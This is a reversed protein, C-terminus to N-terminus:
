RIGEIDIMMNFCFFTTNHCNCLCNVARFIKFSDNETSGTISLCLIDAIFLLIVNKFFCIQTISSSSIFNDRSSNSFYTDNSVDIRPIPIVKAIDKIIAVPPKVRNSLALCNDRYMPMHGVYLCDPPETFILPCILRLPSLSRLTNNYITVHDVIRYLVDQLSHESSSLDCPLGELSANIATALTPVVLRWHIHSLINIFIYLVSLEHFAWRCPAPAHTGVLGFLNRIM